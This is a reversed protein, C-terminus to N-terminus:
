DDKNELKEIQEKDAKIRSDLVFGFETGGTIGSQLKQCESIDYELSSVDDVNKGYERANLTILSRFYDDQYARSCSQLYVDEILRANTDSKQRRIFEFM